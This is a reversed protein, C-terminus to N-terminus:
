LTAIRRALRAEDRIRARRARAEGVRRRRLDLAKRVLLRIGDGKSAIPRLTARREEIEQNEKSLWVGALKTLTSLGLWHMWDRFDQGQQITKCTLVKRNQGRGLAAPKGVEAMM